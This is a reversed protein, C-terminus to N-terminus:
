RRVHPTNSSVIKLAVMNLPMDFLPKYSCERGYWQRLAMLILQNIQFDSPKGTFGIYVANNNDVMAPLIDEARAVNLTNRVTKYFRPSYITWLPIITRKQFTYIRFPDLYDFFKMPHLLFVTKAPMRELIDSATNAEQQKGAWKTITVSMVAIIFISLTALGAKIRKSQLTTPAGGKGTQLFCLLLTMLCGGTLLAHGIRDPFRACFALYMVLTIQYALYALALRSGNYRRGFFFACVLMLLFYPLYVPRFTTTLMQGVPMKSATLPYSLAFINSVTRTNFKTENIGFFGSFMKFDNSSWSNVRFLEKNDSNVDAYPTTHFKGRVLNFENFALQRPDDSRAARDAVFLVALPLCIAVALPLWFSIGRSKDAQRSRWLWWVVVPMTFAAVGFLAEMRYAWAIGILCGGALVERFRLTPATLVLLVGALGCLIGATSYTISVSFLLWVSALCVLLPMFLGRLPDKRCMRSLCFLITGLALMYGAYLSIGYWPLGPIGAYLAAIAKGMIASMFAPEFGAEIDALICFDDNIMYRVPLTLAIATMFLVSLLMSGTWRGTITEIGAHEKFFMRRREVANENM